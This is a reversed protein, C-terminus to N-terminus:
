VTPRISYGRPTSRLLKAGLGPELEDLKRRLM